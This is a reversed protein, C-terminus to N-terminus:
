ALTFNVTMSNGHTAFFQPSLKLFRANLVGLYLHSGPAPPSCRWGHQLPVKFSLSDPLVGACFSQMLDHNLLGVQHLNRSFVTPTQIVQHIGLVMHPPLIWLVTMPGPVDPHPPGSFALLWSSLLLFLCLFSGFWGLVWPVRQLSVKCNLCEEWFSLSM